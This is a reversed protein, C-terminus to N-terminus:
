RDDGSKAWVYIEEIGAAILAVPWLDQYRAIQVIDFRNMALLAGGFILILPVAIQGPHFLRMAEGRNLRQKM